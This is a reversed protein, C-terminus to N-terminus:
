MGNRDKSNKVYMIYAKYSNKWGIYSRQILSWPGKTAAM